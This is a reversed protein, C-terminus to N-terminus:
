SLIKIDIDDGLSPIRFNTISEFEFEFEPVNRTKRANPFVVTFKEIFTGHRKSM